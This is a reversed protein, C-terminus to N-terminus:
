AKGTTLGQEIMKVVSDYLTSKKGSTYKSVDVSNVVTAFEKGDISLNVNITPPPGAFAPAAAAPAGAAATGGGVAAALAGPSTLAVAASAVTTAAMTATFALAKLESLENIKDVINAIEVSMLQLNTVVGDGLMTSFAYSLGLAAVAVASIGMALPFLFPTIFIIAPAIKYIALILADLADLVSPSFGVLIGATMTALATIVISFGMTASILAAGVAYLAAVIVGIGLAAITAQEQTAGLLDHFIFYAAVAAALPVLLAGLSKALGWTAVTAQRQVATTFIIEAALAGQGNAALASAAAASQLALAQAVTAAAASAMSAAVTGLHYGLIILGPILLWLFKTAFSLKQLLWKFASILPGFSVALGKGIQMLEEMVTNFQATQEALAEIDAASKAPEQILDLRGRMMLALQQENLGMASAMAKKQYYDMSDFSLGADDIRDKLIEFRKSPDTEAVLELTNLYPGGLLANLKGVSQAASDFKDFKEVIGLIESLQLGTNKAQVELKKFADVGNSGLAALQPGMSAFDEAMKAGSVGLEQAFTFLERQLKEAQNTGLGMVKTAFQINKATTESAVGLENLIAVTEGLTEQQKESMETFDTVNLFLSQVAQGAEAAGVGATFLSRELGRINDDFEGSAGTARRFSVVAQDQEFALKATEMVAMDLLGTVLSMPTAFKTVSESFKKSFTEPDLIFSAFATEPEQSLFPTIRKFLNDAHGITTGLAKARREAQDAGDRLAAASALTARAARQETKLNAELTAKKDEELDAQTLKLKLIEIETQHTRALEEAADQKIRLQDVGLKQHELEYDLATKSENGLAKRIELLKKEIELRATAQELSEAGKEAEGVFDDAM